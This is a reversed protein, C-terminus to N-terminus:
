LLNKGGVPAPKDAQKRFCRAPELQQEKRQTFERDFDIRAQEKTLDM